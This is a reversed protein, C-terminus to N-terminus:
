RDVLGVALSKRRMNASDLRTNARGITIIAHVCIDERKGRPKTATLLRLLRNPKGRNAFGIRDAPTRLNDYQRPSQRPFNIIPIRLFAQGRTSYAANVLIWQAM